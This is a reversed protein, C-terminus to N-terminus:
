EAERRVELHSGLFDVQDDVMQAVRHQVSRLGPLALLWAVGVLGVPTPKSRNAVPTLGPSIQSGAPTAVNGRCRTFLPALLASGPCDPAM